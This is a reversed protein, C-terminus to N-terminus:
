RLAPVGIDIAARFTARSKGTPGLLCDIYLRDEDPENFPNGGITVNRYGKPVQGSEEVDILAYEPLRREACEVGYLTDLFVGFERLKQFEEITLSRIPLAMEVVHEATPVGGRLIIEGEESFKPRQLLLGSVWDRDHPSANSNKYWLVTSTGQPGSFMRREFLKGLFGSNRM